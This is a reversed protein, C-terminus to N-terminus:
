GESSGKGDGEVSALTLMRRLLLCWKRHLPVYTVLRKIAWLRLRRIQLWSRMSQGLLRNEIMM